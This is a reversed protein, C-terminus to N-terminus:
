FTIEYVVTTAAGYLNGNEDFVVFDPYGGDQANFKHLVTYKWSGDTRPSLRYVTGCGGTCRSLGGRSTTGYIAGAKGFVVGSSPGWGGAQDQFDYLVREHWHGNGASTLGFVTGRQVPGGAATTGYINGMADFNIGGSPGQGDKGSFDWFIREKWIDGEYKLRYVAGDGDRGGGGAGFLAGGGNFTLPSPGSDHPHGGFSYIINEDWQKGSPTLEFVIGSSYIGDAATGYVNGASDLIVGTSPTSGDPGGYEGNFNHLTTLTWGGSEPHLQFVTGGDYAGGSQGTGYLNGSSDFVLGGTPPCGDSACNFNYLTTLTWKSQSNPSLKFVIGGNYTGGSGTEGYINGQADLTLRNWLGGPVHALVKFKPKAWAPLALLLFIAFVFALCFLNAALRPKPMCEGRPPDLRPFAESTRAPLM